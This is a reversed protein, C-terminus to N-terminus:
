FGKLFVSGVTLSQHALVQLDDTLPYPSERRGDRGDDTGASVSDVGFDTNAAGLVDRGDWGVGGAPVVTRLLRVIGV